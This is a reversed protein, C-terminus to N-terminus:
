VADIRWLLRQSIRLDWPLSWSIGYITAFKKVGLVVVLKHSKLNKCGHLRNFILQRKPLVHRWKWIQFTIWALFWRSASLLRFKFKLACRLLINAQQMNWAPEKKTKSKLVASPPSINRRFTSQSEVSWVVNCWLLCIKQVILKEM